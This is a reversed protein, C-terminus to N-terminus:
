RHKPRLSRALERVVSDEVGLDEVDEADTTPPLTVPAASAVFQQHSASRGELVDLLSNLATNTLEVEQVRLLGNLALSRNQYDPQTSVEPGFWSPLQFERAEDEREFDIVILDLEGPATLRSVHARHAGITLDIRRYDVGGAALGLLAEAHPRPLGVPVEVPAGSGLTVLILTGTGEEVRVYISQDSRDPFYGETIRSSGREKEILRALSPALLFRRTISM